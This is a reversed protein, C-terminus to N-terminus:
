NLEPADQPLPLFVVPNACALTSFCISQDIHIRWEGPEGIYVLNSNMECGTLCDAEAQNATQTMSRAPAGPAEVSWDISRDGPNFAPDYSMLMPDDSSFVHTVDTTVSAETPGTAGSAGKAGASVSDNFFSYMSPDDFIQTSGTGSAENLFSIEFSSNSLRETGNSAFLGFHAKNGTFSSLPIGLHRLELMCAGGAGKSSGVAIQAGEEIPSAYIDVKDASGQVCYTNDFFIQNQTFDGNLLFIDYENIAEITQFETTSVPAGQSQWAPQGDWEVYSHIEVERTENIELDISIWNLQGGQLSFETRASVEPPPENLDTSDINSVCGSLALSAFIFISIKTM